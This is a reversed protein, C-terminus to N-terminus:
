NETAFYAPECDKPRSQERQALKFHVQSGLVVRSHPLLLADHRQAGDEKSTRKTLAYKEIHASKHTQTHITVTKHIEKDEAWNLQQTGVQQQM